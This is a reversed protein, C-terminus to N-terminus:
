RVSLLVSRMPRGRGTHLGLASASRYGRRELSWRRQHRKTHSGTLATAGTARLGFLRCRCRHLSKKATQALSQQIQKVLRRWVDPTFRLTPGTRNKTDRVLVRTRDDNVEICNGGSGGSYSSKTWSQKNM